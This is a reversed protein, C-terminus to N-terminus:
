SEYWALSFTTETPRINIVPNSGNRISYLVIVDNAAVTIYTVLQNTGQPSEGEDIWSYSVSEEVITGNKRIYTRISGTKNNGDITYNVMYTVKLTGSKLVTIESNNTSTSHSFLTNDYFQQVQWPIPIETTTNIDITSSTKVQIKPRVSILRAIKDGANSIRVSDSSQITSFTFTEGDDAITLTVTNEIVSLNFLLNWNSDFSSYVYIGPDRQETNTASLIWFEGDSPTGAPFTDSIPIQLKNSTAGAVYQVPGLIRM